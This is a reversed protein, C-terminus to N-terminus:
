LLAEVYPKLANKDTLISAYEMLQQLNKDTGNM